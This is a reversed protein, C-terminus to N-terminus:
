RGAWDVHEAGGGEDEGHESGAHGHRSSGLVDPVRLDRRRGSARYPGCAADLLDGPLCGENGNTLGYVSWPRSFPYM